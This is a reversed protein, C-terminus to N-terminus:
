PGPYGTDWHALDWCIPAESTLVESSLCVNGSMIAVTMVTEGMM